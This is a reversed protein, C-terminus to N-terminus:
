YRCTKRRKRKGATMDASPSNLNVFLLPLEWGRLTHFIRSLADKELQSPRRRMMISKNRRVTTHQQILEFVRPMVGLPLDNLYSLDFLGGDIGCLALIVKKRIKQEVTYDGKNINLVEQELPPRQAVISPNKTDYTYVRCIHNSQVISDMNTPDYLVNLLVKDGEETIGNDLLKLNLLRTNEKLASAFLETDDDSIDNGDLRILEVPHNNRIFKSIVRVAESGLEDHRIIVKNIRKCGQLIIELVEINDLGSREFVVLELTCHNQFADSLSTAISLDQILDGGLVVNRLSTNQTLFSSLCTYEDVGLGVEHLRLTELNLTQLAPLIIDLVSIPVSINFIQVEEVSTRGDLSKALKQWHPIMM